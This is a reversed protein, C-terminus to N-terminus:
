RDDEGGAGVIAPEREVADGVVFTQADEVRRPRGFRLEAAGGADGDDAAAVGGALGGHPEGAAAREDGEEVPAGLEVLRHGVVEDALELAVADRDAIAALDGSEVALVSPELGDSQLAALPKREGKEEEEEAGLRAGLPQVVGVSAMGVAEDEGAVGRVRVVQ